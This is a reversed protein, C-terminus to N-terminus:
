EPSSAFLEKAREFDQIAARLYSPKKDGRHYKDRYCYGRELYNYPNDEELSIAENYKEIADDFEGLEKHSQGAVRCTEAMRRSNM